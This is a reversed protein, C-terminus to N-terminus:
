KLGQLMRDQMLKVTETMLPWFKNSKDNESSLGTEISQEYSQISESVKDFQNIVVPDYYYKIQLALGLIKSSADMYCQMAEIDNTKFYITGVVRASCVKYTNLEIVLQNLLDLRKEITHQKVLEKNQRKWFSYEINQQLPLFVLSVVGGIVASILPILVYLYIAKNKKFIKVFNILFKM